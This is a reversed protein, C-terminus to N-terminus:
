GAVLAPGGQLDDNAAHAGRAAEGRLPDSFGVGGRPTLGANFSGSRYFHSAPLYEADRGNAITETILVANAHLGLEHPTPISAM